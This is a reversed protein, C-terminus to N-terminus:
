IYAFVIIVDEIFMIKFTAFDYPSEYERVIEEIRENTIIENFKRFVLQNIVDLEETAADDLHYAEVLEIDENELAIRMDEFSELADAQMKNM